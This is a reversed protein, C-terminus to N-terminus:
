LKWKVILKLNLFSGYIIIAAHDDLHGPPGFHVRDVMCLVNNVPVTANPVIEAVLPHTICTRELPHCDSALSGFANREVACRAIVAAATIITIASISVDV